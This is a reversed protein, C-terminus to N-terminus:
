SQPCYNLWMNIVVNTITKEPIVEMKAGAASSEHNEDQNMVETQVSYLVPSSQFSSLATVIHRHCAKARDQKMEM